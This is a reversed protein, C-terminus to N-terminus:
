PGNELAMKGKRSATTWISMTRQNGVSEGRMGDDRTSMVGTDVWWRGVIEKDM